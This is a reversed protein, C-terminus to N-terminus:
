GGKTAGGDIRYGTQEVVLGGGAEGVRVVDHGDGDAVIARGRQARGLHDVQMDDALLDVDRRLEVEQAAGVSPVRNRHGTGRSVIIDQFRRGPSVCRM